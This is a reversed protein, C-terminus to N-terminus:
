VLADLFFFFFPLSGSSWFWFPLDCASCLKCDELAFYAGNVLDTRAVNDPTVHPLAGRSTVAFFAPTAVPKRGLLALSGLRPVATGGLTEDAVVADGIGNGVSSAATKLIRFRHLPLPPPPMSNPLASPTSPDHLGAIDSAM